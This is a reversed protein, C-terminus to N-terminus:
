LDIAIGPILCRGRNDPFGVILVHRCAASRDSSSLRNAPNVRKEDVATQVTYKLCAPAKNSGGQARRTAGEVSNILLMLAVVKGAVRTALQAQTYTILPFNADERSLWRGFFPIISYFSAFTFGNRSCRYFYQTMNPFIGSTLHRFFLFLPFINHENSSFEM